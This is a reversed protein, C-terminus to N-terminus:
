KLVGTAFGITTAVWGGALILSIWFLIDVSKKLQSYSFKLRAQDDFTGNLINRLTDRNRRIAAIEQNLEEFNAAQTEVTDELSRNSEEYAAVTQILAEKQENSGKLEAQLTDIAKSHLVSVRRLTDKSTNLETVMHTLAAFLDDKLTRKLDLDTAIRWQLKEMDYVVINKAM